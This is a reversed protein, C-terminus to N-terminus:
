RQADNVTDVARAAPILPGVAECEVFRHLHRQPVEGGLLDTERQVPQEAAPAIAHPGIGGAEIEMQAVGFVGLEEAVGGRDAVVGELDLDAVRIELAVQM